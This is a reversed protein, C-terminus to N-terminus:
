LGGLPNRYWEKKAHIDMRNKSKKKTKRNEIKIMLRNSKQPIDIDPKIAGEEFVGCVKRGM